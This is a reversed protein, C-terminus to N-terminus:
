SVFSNRISTVTSKLEIFVERSISSKTESRIFAVQDDASETVRVPSSQIEIGSFINEIREMERILDTVDDNHDNDKLLLMVIELSLKKDIVMNVLRNDELDDEDIQNVALYLGEIWGGVLLIAAVPERNNEQLFSSSNMFTESVIDMIVERNNINEELRELTYSDIADLIGLNDALRRAADMYHMTTQTQDFLSAYSLDTTYIGLNLAMSRNTMYRSVNEVPNLLDENYVAGSSKLLMATELPSPLSYFIQRVRALDEFSDESLDVTFDAEREKIQRDCTCGSNFLLLLLFGLGAGYRIITGINSM